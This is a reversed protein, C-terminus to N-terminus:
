HASVLDPIIPQTTTITGTTINGIDITTTTGTGTPVEVSINTSIGSSPNFTGGQFLANTAASAVGAANVNVSVGADTAATTAANTLTTAVSSTVGEVATRVEQPTTAGSTASTQSAVVVGVTTTATAVITGAAATNGAKASAAVATGVISAAANTNGTVATAIAAASATAQAVLNAAAPSTGAATAITGIVATVDSLNGLTANGSSGVVAVSTALATIAETAAAGDTAILESLSLNQTGADGTISTNGAPTTALTVGTLSVSQVVGAVVTVSLTGGKYSVSYTTGRAAAVGKPTTVKYNNIAKKTPDLSSALDGSRLAITANRVGNASVSLENIAFTTKSSAVAVIGDHATVIAQSKDGTTVEAGQPLKMGQTLATTSGDPMKVTATGTVQTVTAEANTDAWAAGALFCLSALFSVLLKSIKM